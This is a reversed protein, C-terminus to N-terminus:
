DYYYYANPIHPFFNPPVRKAGYSPIDGKNGPVNAPREPARNDVVRRPYFRSLVYKHPLTLPINQSQKISPYAYFPVGVHPTSCSLSKQLKETIRGLNKSNDV